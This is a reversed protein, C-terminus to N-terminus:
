GGTSALCRCVLCRDVEKGARVGRKDCREVRFYFVPRPCRHCRWRCRCAPMAGLLGSPRAARGVAREGRAGAATSPRCRPCPLRGGRRPRARRLSCRPPFWARTCAARKAAATTPSSPAPALSSPPHHHALPRLLGSVSGSSRWAGDSQFRAPLLNKGSLHPILPPKRFLFKNVLAAPLVLKRSPSGELM